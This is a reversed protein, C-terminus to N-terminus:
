HGVLDDTGIEEDLGVRLLLDEDALAARHDALDTRARARLDLRQQPVRHEELELHLHPRTPAAVVRDEFPEPDLLTIAGIPSALTTRASSGALPSARPIAYKRPIEISLAPEVRSHRCRPLIGGPATASGCM